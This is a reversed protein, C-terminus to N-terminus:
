WVLRFKAYVYPYNPRFWNRFSPRLLERATVPSAGKMVFHASDFFEVSYQPYSPMPEFGPFGDFVTSTWEWGNGALDYIGRGNPPYSGAPVPDFAAFDFCGAAFTGAADAARHWEAETMLRGGAWRAFATAEEQTVYVPGDLPLPVPAFMGRWYWRGDVTTWFHPPKAGTEEVYALYRGNTVSLADIEFAEVEVRQPPLENDWAFTDCNGLQAVGAPVAVRRDPPTDRMSSAGAFRATGRKKAYPLEHLMYLFTEQHMVEHELIMVVLDERVPEERLTKEILADAASVYRRVADRDPWGASGDVADASEPDIGRAFLVELGDDVGRKGYGYKVLTNVVFAPLHGDYFVIPNRLPIPREYYADPTPISFLARTRERTRRYWELAQERTLAPFRANRPAAGAGSANM